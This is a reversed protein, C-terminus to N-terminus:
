VSPAPVALFPSRFMTYAAVVFSLMTPVADGDPWILATTPEPLWATATVNVVLSPRGAVARTSVVLRAASGAPQLLVSVLKVQLPTLVPM